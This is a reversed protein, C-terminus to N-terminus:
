KDKKRFVAQRKAKKGTVFNRPVFKVYDSLENAATTHQLFKDIEARQVALGEELSLHTEDIIPGESQNVILDQAKLSAYFPCENDWHRQLAAEFDHSLVVTSNVSSAFVTQGCYFCNAPVMAINV